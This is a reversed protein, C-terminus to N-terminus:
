PILIDNSLLRSLFYNVSGFEKKQLPHPLHALVGM